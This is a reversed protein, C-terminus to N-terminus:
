ISCFQLWSHSTALEQVNSFDSNKWNKKVTGKSENWVMCYINRAEDPPWPSICIPKTLNTKQNFKRGRWGKSDLHSKHIVWRATQRRKVWVPNGPLAPTQSSNQLQPCVSKLAHQVSQQNAHSNDLSQQMMNYSTSTTSTTSAPESCWAQLVEQLKKSWSWM